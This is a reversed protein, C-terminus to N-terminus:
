KVIIHPTNKITYLVTCATVRYQVRQLAASYVSYCQVTCATVSYQVRQLVTSYVSYRQVTCATVSYEVIKRM